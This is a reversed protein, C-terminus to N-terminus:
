PGLVVPDVVSTSSVLLIRLIIAPTKDNTDMFVNPICLIFVCRTQFSIYQALRSQFLSLNSCSGNTLLSKITESIKATILEINSSDRRM